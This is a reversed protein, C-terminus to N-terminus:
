ASSSYEEDEYEERSAPGSSADGLNQDGRPDLEAAWSYNLLALHTSGVRRHVRALLHFVFAEDPSSNKLKNLEDLCEENRKAEFLLRARNFRCAIDMPNLSIAKDILALAQDTRGRQQEIQSLTCLMARNTPNISIAKQINTQALANQEKKLHVLGLGYWARYDRPCLHIAARFSGAAKELEDQVILEHGLLTYAYAFNKDLQLAREMCEVAQVHQRQLSFCNGAVCWSQPRERAETTLKEALSSLNHADQLHWLSTSLLETGDVRWPRRSYLENLINRCEGYEAQEFCARGLQYRALSTNLLVNRDLNQLLRDTRRWSYRLISEEIRVMKLYVDMFERYEDTFAPERANEASEVGESHQSAAAVGGAAGSEHSSPEEVNEILENATSSVSNTSGSLSRVLNSNRSSLPQKIDRKRGSPSKGAKAEAYRTSSRLNQVKPTSGRSSPTASSRGRTPATANMNETDSSLIPNARSSRSSGAAETSSSARTAQSIRRSAMESLRSSKRPAPPAAIGAKIGGIPTSRENKSSTAKKLKEKEDVVDAQLKIVEGLDALTRQCGREAPPMKGEYVRMRHPMLLDNINKGGFQIYMCIASWALICRELGRRCQEVADDTQSEHGLLKAYLFLVHAALESDELFEPRLQGTESDMLTQRCEDMKNLEFCCKAFLFRTQAGATKRTLLLGFVQEKRNARMLCDAYLFLSDNTMKREYNFEALVIADDFAYFKLLSLIEDEIKRNRHPFQFKSYYQRFDEQTQLSGVATPTM